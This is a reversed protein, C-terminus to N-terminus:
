TLLGDQHVHYIFALIIFYKSLHVPIQSMPMASPNWVNHQPPHIGYSPPMGYGQSMALQYGPPMGYGYSPPMGLGYMPPPQWTSSAPQTPDPQEYLIPQSPGSQSPDPQHSSSGHEYTPRPRPSQVVTHRPRPDQRGTSHRSPSVQADQILPTRSLSQRAPRAPRPAPGHAAVDAAGACTLVSYVRRLKDELRKFWSVQQPLPAFDAVDSQIDQIM